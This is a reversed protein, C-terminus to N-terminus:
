AFCKGKRLRLKVMLWTPPLRVRNMPPLSLSGTLDHFYTHKPSQFTWYWAFILIGEKSIIQSPKSAQPFLFLWGVEQFCLAGAGLRLHFDGSKGGGGPVEVGM